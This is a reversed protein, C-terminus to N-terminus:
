DGLGGPSSSQPPLANQTPAAPASPSQLLGASSSVGGTWHGAVPLDGAIGYALVSNAPGSTLTNRLSFLGASFLGVGVQGSATWDGVVPIQNSGSGYTFTINAFVSCNCVLNSLYMGHNSPRYVGPSSFGKNTWDGAIGIDGPIGLVMTEDAYGTTLTNRLYILGNSPRYIGVGDHAVSTTWRGTIPQDNPLGLVFQEDPAGSTNTNRLSFLGNTQDYVGITDTGIGTWDGVVPYAKSAPNFAVITDSGSGTSRLYFTGSRFVGVGDRHLPNANAHIWGQITQQYIGSFDPNVTWDTVSLSRSGTSSANQELITITGTGASDLNVATVVATHGFSNVQSGNETIADGPVMSHYGNPLFTMSSPIYNKLTNGNGPFPHIGWEVYLFRMVLEVCEFEYEGWAGYYFSVLHDPNGSTYSPRPGCALVNHWSSGLPAAHIGMAPYYNGDNCTGSWWAPTGVDQPTSQIQAGGTSNTSRARGLDLATDRLGPTVPNAIVLKQASANWEVANALQTDWAIVVTWLRGGHEVNWEVSTMPESSTGIGASLDVQMAMGTVTNGWFVGGPGATIRRDSKAAESNMISQRYNAIDGTKYVPRGVSPVHDPLTSKVTLYANGSAQSLAAYSSFQDSANDEVVNYQLATPACFSIQEGALTVLVTKNTACAQANNVTRAYTTLKGGAFLTMVVFSFCIATKKISAHLAPM